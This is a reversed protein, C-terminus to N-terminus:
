QGTASAQDAAPQAPKETMRYRAPAVGYDKLEVFDGGDDVGNRMVSYVIWGADTHKLKLPKRSYPDITMAPPLKLEDLGSAERGNKEAFEALANFIRLSRMVGVIRSEAEYSAQLAPLLLDAMIGLGTEDPAGQRGVQSNVHPWSQAVLALQTDLYDMAGVFQRKMPWYVLGGFPANVEKMEPGTVTQSAVSASYARDTKLAHVIRASNDHLALEKEVAAHLEPSVPGAALGDYLIQCGHGRVAISVLYNVLLPEADYHRALRMLEIGQEVAREHQGAAISAEASWNLFRAATRIRGVQNKLGDDLFKQYDATYDATSAYQDCKAAAALAAAIDQYKDVIARISAIQEKTAPEGRDSRQDYDKGLAADTWAAYEKSFEDLRSAIRDLVVAANENAPVPAPALDSISAPDGAARIAAMRGQLQRETRWAMFGNAILVLAVVIGIIMALRKLRRASGLLQM